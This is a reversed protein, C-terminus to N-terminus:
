QRFPEAFSHSRGTAVACVHGAARALDIDRKASEPIYRRGIPGAALTGDIDFFLYRARM